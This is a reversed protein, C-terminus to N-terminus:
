LLGKISQKYYENASEVFEIVPRGFHHDLDDGAIAHPRPLSCQGYYFIINCSKSEIQLGREEGYKKVLLSMCVFDRLISRRKGADHPANGRKIEYISINKKIRDYTILDVQLTRKSEGYALDTPLLTYPDTAVNVMNDAVGSIAFANDEWVQFDPTEYEKLAHLISQELILGHRKQASGFISAKYSFEDGLIPDVRFNRSIMREITQDVISRIHDAYKPM